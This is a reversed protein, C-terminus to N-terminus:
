AHDIGGAGVFGTVVVGSRSADQPSRWFRLAVPTM